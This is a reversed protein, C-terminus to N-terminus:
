EPPSPPAQEVASGPEVSYPFFKLYRPRGVHDRHVVGLPAEITQHHPSGPPIAPNVWTPKMTISPTGCHTPDPDDSLCSYLQDLRADQEEGASAGAHDQVWHVAAVELAAHAVFESWDVVADGELIRYSPLFPVLGLSPRKSMTLGGGIKAIRRLGLYPDSVVMPECFLAIRPDPARLVGDYWVDYLVCQFIGGAAPDLRPAELGAEQFGLDFPPTVLLQEHGGSPIDIAVVRPPKCAPGLPAALLTIRVMLTCITSRGRRAVGGVVM